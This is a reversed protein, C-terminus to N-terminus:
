ACFINYLDNINNNITTIPEAENVIGIYKILLDCPEANVTSANIDTRGLTIYRGAAAPTKAIVSGGYATGLANGSNKFQIVGIFYDSSSIDISTDSAWSSVKIINGYLMIGNGTDRTKFSSILRSYQTPNVAKMVAYATFPTSDAGLDVYGLIGNTKVPLSIANEITDLTPTGNSFQVANTGKGWTSASSDFNDVYAECIVNNVNSYPLYTDQADAGNYLIGRKYGSNSDQVAVLNYTQKQLITLADWQAETLLPIDGNGGCNYAIDNHMIIGM